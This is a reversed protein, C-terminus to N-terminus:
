KSAASLRRKHLKDGPEADRTLLKRVPTAAAALDVLVIGPNRAVVPQQGFFLLGEDGKVILMRQFPM